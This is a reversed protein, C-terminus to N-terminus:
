LYADLTSGSRCRVQLKVAAAPTGIPLHAIAAMMSWALSRAEHGEPDLGAATTGAAKQAVEPSKPLAVPKKEQAEGGAALLLVTVAISGKTIRM